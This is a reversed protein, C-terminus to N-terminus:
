KGNGSPRDRLVIRFLGQDVPLTEVSEELWLPAIEARIANRGDEDLTELAKVAKLRREEREAVVSRVLSHAAELPMRDLLTRDAFLTRLAFSPLSLLTSSITTNVTAQTQFSGLTIGQMKSTSASPRPAHTFPAVSHSLRDPIRSVTALEPASADFEFGNAMAATLFKQIKEILDAAYPYYLPGEPVRATQGNAHTPLDTTLKSRTHAMAFTLAIEVNDPLLYDLVLALGATAIDPIELYWGAAIYSLINDMVLAPSHLSSQLHSRRILGAGYLNRIALIFMNHEQFYAEKPIEITPYERGQHTTLNTGAHQLLGKLRRSRSLIMRHARITQAGKGTGVQLLCDAYDASYFFTEVHERLDQGLHQEPDVPPGRPDFQGSLRNATHQNPYASYPPNQVSYPPATSYPNPYQPPLQGFHQSLRNQHFSSDSQNSSISLPRPSQAPPAGNWQRTQQPNYGVGAPQFAQPNTFYPNITAPPNTGNNHSGARAHGNILPPPSMMGNTPPIGNPPPNWSAMPPHMHSPPAAEVSGFVVSRRNDRSAGPERSGSLAISTVAAPQAPKDAPAVENSLPAESVAPQHKESSQEDGSSISVKAVADAREEKGQIPSSLESRSSEAGGTADANGNVSASKSPTLSPNSAIDYRVSSPSDTRSTSCSNVDGVVSDVPKTEAVAAEKKASRDVSKQAFHRPIAPVIRAAVKATKRDAPSSGPQAM